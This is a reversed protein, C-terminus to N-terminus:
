FAVTKTFFALTLDILLTLCHSIGATKLICRLWQFGEGREREEVEGLTIFFM